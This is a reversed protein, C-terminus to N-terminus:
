KPLYENLAAVIVDRRNKDKVADIRAIMSAPLFLSLQVEDEPHFIEDAREKGYHRVTFSYAYDETREEITEMSASHIYEFYWRTKTLYMRHLEGDYETECLLRATETNFQRRKITKIM